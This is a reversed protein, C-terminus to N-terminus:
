DADNPHGAKRRNTRTTLSRAWALEETHTECRWMKELTYLVISYREGDEATKKMPTVGHVLSQGDFVSLSGDGVRLALRYEPLVLYGGAVNKRMGILISRVGRVNGADLHYPLPSNRNIIGSTFVTGGIRYENKIRAASEHHMALENPLVKGYYHQTRQAIEVLADNAEPHEAAFQNPGCGRQRLASRPKYGFCCSRSYFANGTTMRSLLSLRAPSLLKRLRTTEIVSPSYFGLCREGEYLITETDILLDYDADAAAKGLFKAGDRKRGAVDLIEPM